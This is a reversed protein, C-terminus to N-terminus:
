GPSATQTDDLRLTTDDDVYYTFSRDGWDAHVETATATGATDGGTNSYGYCGVTVRYGDRAAEVSETECEVNVDSSDDYWLANYAYRYEFARVYSAASTRNLETPREPPDMPGDPLDTTTDPYPTATESDPTPTGTSNPPTIPEEAGGNPVVGSCGALVLTAVVVLTAVLTRNM